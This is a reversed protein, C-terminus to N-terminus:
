IGNKIWLALANLTLVIRLLFGATLTAAAPKRLNTELVDATVGGVFVFAFSLGLTPVWIRGAVVLAFLLVAAFATLLPATNGFYRARTWTGYILLALAFLGPFLYGDVFAFAMARALEWTAQPHLWSRPGPMWGGMWWNIGGLVLLAVASAGVLVALVSRRRGPALYLMFVFALLVLTVSWLATALAFGISLGLIVIRPAWKRPPAYLTHAVGIATYILGFISWALLIEPAINSSIKLMAPSSCYLGLAVYGGADDFLRRAVWWLAGGLWVGFMVFPLRLFWPRPIALAARWSEPAVARAARVLYVPVSAVLGTFPSNIRYEAGADRSIGSAIYEYELPSVGRGAAVWLGQALFALLMLGAFIQPRGIKFEKAAQFM